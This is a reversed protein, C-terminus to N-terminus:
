HEAPDAPQPAQDPTISLWRRLKRHLYPLLVWQMIAVTAPILLALRAPLPLRHLVPDAGTALITIVPYIAASTVLWLKWRKPTATTITHGPAPRRNADSSKRRNV